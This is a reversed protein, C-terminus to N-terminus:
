LLWFRACARIMDGAGLSTSSRESKANTSFQTPIAQRPTMWHTRQFSNHFGNHSFYRCYIMEGVQNNLCHEGFRGIGRSDSVHDLAGVRKAIVRAAPLDPSVREDSVADALRFGYSSRM